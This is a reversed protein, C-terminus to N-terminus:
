ADRLELLHTQTTKLKYCGLIALIMKVTGAHYSRFQIPAVYFWVLLTTINVHYYYKVRVVSFIRLSGARREIQVLSNMM